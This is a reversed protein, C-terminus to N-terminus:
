RRDNGYFNNKDMIFLAINRLNKILDDVSSNGYNHGSTKDSFEINDYIGIEKATKNAKYSDDQKIAKLYKQIMQHHEKLNQSGIRRLIEELNLLRKVFLQQNRIKNESAKRSQNYSDASVMTAQTGAENLRNLEERILRKLRETTLKMKIDGYNTIFLRIIKFFHHLRLSDFGRGAYHLNFDNM